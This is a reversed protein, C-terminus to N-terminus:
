LKTCVYVEDSRQYNHCETVPNLNEARVQGIQQFFDDKMTLKTPDKKITTGATPSVMSVSPILVM